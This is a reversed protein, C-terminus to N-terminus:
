NFGYNYTTKKGSRDVIAWFIHDSLTPIKLRIIWNKTLSEGREPEQGLSLFTINSTPQNLHASLLRRAKRLVQADQAATEPLNLEELAQETALALPSEVDSSDKLFSEIALIAANEATVTGSFAKEQKQAEEVRLDNRIKDLRFRAVPSSLVAYHGFLSCSSLILALGLKRM